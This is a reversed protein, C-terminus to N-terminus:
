LEPALLRAELHEGLMKVLGRIEQHALPPCALAYSTVLPVSGQRDWRGIIQAYGDDGWTARLTVSVEPTKSVSVGGESLSLRTRIARM